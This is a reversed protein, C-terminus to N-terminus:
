CISQFAVQLPVEDAFPQAVQTFHGTAASYGPNAYNYSQYEKYFAWMVESWSQFGITALVNQDPLNLNKLNLFLQLIVEALGKLHPANNHCLVRCFSHCYSILLREKIHVAPSPMRLRKESPAIQAHAGIHEEKANLTRGGVAVEDSQSM